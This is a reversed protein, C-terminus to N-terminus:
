ATPASEVRHGAQVLADCASPLSEKAVLVHDTDYTSIVFVPIEADALPVVISALVGVLSFDLTGRVRMAAWPGSADVEPPVADAACVISVEEPTRTISYWSSEQLWDPTTARAALRCIVLDLRVLTLELRM